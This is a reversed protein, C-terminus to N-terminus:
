QNSNSLVSKGKILYFLSLFLRPVSHLKELTMMNMYTKLSFTDFHARHCDLKYIQNKRIKWTM